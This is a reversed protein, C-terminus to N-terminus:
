RYEGRGGFEAMHARYWAHADQLTEPLPRATFGLERRAKGCDCNARSDRLIALSQYTYGPPGAGLLPKAAEFPLGLCAIQWPVALRKTKRGSIEGCLRALEAVRVWHGCLLFQGCCEAQLASGIAGAVDRTDIWDFGGDVVLPLDGSFLRCLMRGALSGDYDHPGIFGTPNLIVLDLGAEAVARVADEGAAKSRDYASSSRNARPSSEDLVALEPSPRFAHISSLHVLKRVGAALCAEAVNRAGQVNTRMVMGDLDGGISILGALHVVADAGRFADRLAQPELIDAAIRQVALGDLATTKSAPHHLARVDMGNALLERVTNAGLHGTAGTVVVQM